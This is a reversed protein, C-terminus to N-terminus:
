SLRYGGGGWYSSGGFGGRGTSGGSGPFNLLGGSAGGGWAPTETSATAGHGGAGRLIAGVDVTCITDGVRCTM